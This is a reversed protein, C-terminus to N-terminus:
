TAEPLLGRRELERLMDEAYHQAREHEGARLPGQIDHVFFSCPQAIVICGLRRLRRTAANAASGPVFKKDVRTDFAAAPVGCPIAAAELWDRIGMEAEAQSGRQKADERTKHRSMGFAHTPGAVVLLSLDDPPTVEAQAVACVEVPIRPRLVDAIDEAIARTNGFMSEVVIWATVIFEKV